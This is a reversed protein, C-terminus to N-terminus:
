VLVPNWFWKLLFWRLSLLFTGVFVIIPFYKVSAVSHICSSVRELFFLSSCLCTCHFVFLSMWWVVVVFMFYFNFLLLGTCHFFRVNSLLSWDLVHLLFYVTVFLHLSFFFLFMWWVVVVFMFYFTFLLLGTCHFFGVNNLLSWDLVHLLFYVAVFLHLLFCVLVSMLNWGRVQLLFYVGACLYLSFRLPVNMLSWDCLHWLFYVVDFLRLSFCILANM